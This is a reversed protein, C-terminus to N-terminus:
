SGVFVKHRGKAGHSAPRVKNEDRELGIAKRIEFVIRGFPMQKQARLTGGEKIPKVNYFFDKYAVGEAVIWNMDEGEVLSRDNAVDEVSAIEGTKTRFYKGYCSDFVRWTGKLKVFSLPYTVKHERDPITAWFASIHAYTCLTTFVDQSQDCTGYGRIIINVIHDDYVSMGKPVKRINRHTWEFLALVKDEDTVCGRTVDKAIREYEYHRALFEIVKAYLPMKIERLRGDVAQRISVEANLAIGITIIAGIAIYINRRNRMNIEKKRSSRRWNQM